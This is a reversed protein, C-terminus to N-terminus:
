AQVGMRRALGRWGLSAYREAIDTKRSRWGFFERLSYVDFGYEEALQCARQARFWHPYIEVGLKKGLRKVILYATVRTIPFLKNYPCLKVWKTMYPVLPERKLIPFTRFEKVKVTIWKGDKREGVKQFRKLIPMKRVIILEPHANFDFNRKTLSLVESIRGGTEFLTAVLGQHFESKTSEVLELLFNWGCFEIVEKTAAHKKVM